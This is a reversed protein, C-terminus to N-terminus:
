ILSKLYIDEIERRELNLTHILLPDANKLVKESYNKIKKDLISKEKLAPILDFQSTFKQILEVVIEIAEGTSAESIDAGFANAITELKKRERGLVVSCTWPLLLGNAMGHKLGLDLTLCFGMHHALGMGTQGVVIGALLAAYSLKSRYSMNEPDSLVEPLYRTILRISELALLDTLPQSNRSMIGEVSHSLADLGNAVTVAEPFTLTFTPDVFALTPYILSSAVIQIAPSDNETTIASFPTVESGSGATLTVAVIPLPQTKINNVGFFDTLTATGPALAAMVKAADMPCEGGIGVVVDCKEVKGIQAGEDIEQIRPQAGVRDFLICKIGAKELANVVKQLAGSNKAMAGAVILARNGYKLTKAGIEGIFEEGFNIQTPMQFQFNERM